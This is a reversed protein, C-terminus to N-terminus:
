RRRCYRYPVLCRTGEDIINEVFSKQPPGVLTPPTISAEYLRILDETTWETAYLDRGAVRLHNLCRSFEHSSFGAVSLGSIANQLVGEVEPVGRAARGGPQPHVMVGARHCPSHSSAVPAVRERFLRLDGLAERQMVTKGTPMIKKANHHIHHNSATHAYKLSSFFVYIVVNVTFVFINLIGQPM